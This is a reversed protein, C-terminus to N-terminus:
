KTRVNAMKKQLESMNSAAEHAATREYNKLSQKKLAGKLESEHPDQWRSEYAKKQQLSALHRKLENPGSAKMPAGVRAAQNRIQLAKALDPRDPQMPLPKAAILEDESAGAGFVRQQTGTMNAGPM